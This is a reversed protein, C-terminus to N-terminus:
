FHNIFVSRSALCSALSWFPRSALRIPKKFKRRTAGRAPWAGHRQLLHMDDRELVRELEVVVVHGSFGTPLSSIPGSEVAGEMAGDVASLQVASKRYDFVFYWMFITIMVNNEPIALVDYRVEM